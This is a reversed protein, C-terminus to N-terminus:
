KLPELTEGDTCNYEGDFWRLWVNHKSCILDLEDRAKTYTSHGSTALLVGESYNWAVAAYSSKELHANPPFHIIKYSADKM